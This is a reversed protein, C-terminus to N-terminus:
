ATRLAMKIENALQARMDPRVFRGVEIRRGAASLTVLDSPKKQALVQVWDRVLTETHVTGALEREVVLANGQLCIHERDTAHRAYLVFALGLALLELAAFPLVLVAGFWWFFGAVSLSLVCLLGYAVCLHRPAMSCNRKLSWLVGTSTRAGLRYSPSRSNM